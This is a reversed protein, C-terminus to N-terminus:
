RALPGADLPAASLKEVPTVRCVRFGILNFRGGPPYDNRIAARLSRADRSWSEGRLVRSADGATGVEDPKERENLCWERVNGALDFVGEASTLPYIGVATTRGVSVGGPLKERSVENCNANGAAYGKGWPYEAGETGSAARVWQQETRLRIDQNLAASLWRCFAVAEYWSVRERPANSETWAADGPADIRKALGQWWCPEAYGGADIFAQFQRHTVPYRAIDFAPLSPHRRGQDIFGKPTAIRVWGIDPLGDARLSIALRDDLGQAGLWRGIAARVLPSPEASADTLRPRWQAASARLQDAQLPPGDARRWVDLALGPNAEALWSILRQLAVTDAAISEAAIEAVVEWGNRQWWRHALWFYSAPLGDACAQRLARSALAEQLLQHSFRLDGGALQLVSADRSFDLVEAIGAPWHERHLSTVVAGAAVDGGADAGAVPGFHQLSEALRTLLALWDALHPVSRGDLRAERAERAEREREHLMRLFGDFLQTRGPPIAPLLMMMSLLYPNAALRLLSRPGHRAERWLRDHEGSTKSHVNPNERPIEDLTWFQEFSAGAEQWRAWAERLGAGGSVGGAIGWFRQEGRVAGQGSDDALAYARLLCRHVQLPTLPQLTLRALPLPTVADFDRARCSLVVALWPPADFARRIQAAKDARQPQPIENLGDLLLLARRQDRLAAWWRGLGTRAGDDDLDLQREAFRDFPEDARTWLGLRLLLPLPATDDHLARRAHDCAIRELSFSKGAGPEGLVVLRPVRRQPLQRYADLVDDFPPLDQGAKASQDAPAQGFASLLQRTDFRVVQHLRDALTASQQRAALPEYVAEHRSLRRHLLSNLWALETRRQEPPIAAGATTDAGPKPAPARRQVAAAPAGLSAAAADGERLPVPQHEKAYLPLRAGGAAGAVVVAAVVPLGWEDAQLMERRQWRCAASDAGFVAVVLDAAQLGELIRAYWDDDGAVVGTEDRWVRAGRADLDAQVQEARTPAAGGRPYSVFIRLGALHAGPQSTLATGPPM